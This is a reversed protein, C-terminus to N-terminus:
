ILQFKPIKIEDTAEEFLVSVRANRFIEHNKVGVLNSILVPGEDLEVQIINYPLEEEFAKFYKQHM